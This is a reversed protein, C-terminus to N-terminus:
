SVGGLINRTNLGSAVEYSIVHEKSKMRNRFEERTEEDKMYMNHVRIISIPFISLNSLTDRVNEHHLTVKTSGKSHANLRKKLSTSMGVYYYNETKRRMQLVYIYGDAESDYEDPLDGIRDEFNEKYSQSLGAEKRAKKVSGFLSKYAQVSPGTTNNITTHKTDGKNAQIWLLHNILDNKNESSYKKSVTKRMERRDEKISEYIGCEKYLDDLSKFHKYVINPTPLDNNANLVSTDITEDNNRYWSSVVEVVKDKDWESNVGRTAPELGRKKLADEISGFRSSYTPQTPYDNSPDNLITATVKGNEDYCRELEDLLEKNSIKVM